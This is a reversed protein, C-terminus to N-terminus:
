TCYLVIFVANKRELEYTYVTCLARHKSIMLKRKCTLIPWFGISMRGLGGSQDVGGRTDM